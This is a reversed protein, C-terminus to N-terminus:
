EHKNNYVTKVIPDISIDKWKGQVSRAGIKFRVTKTGCCSGIGMLTVSATGRATNKVYSGPLVCFDGTAGDTSFVLKEKNKGIVATEFQEQSTITVADAGQYNQEKIKFTAKGIDRVTGAETIRYNASITEETYGGMGTVRVTIVDGAKPFSNGTLPQGDANVYILERRYDTGAKLLKGGTDYVRVTTKYQGAKRGAPQDIATVTIGAEETFPRRTIAFEKTLKGSYNGKGTITLKGKKASAEGTGFYATNGSYKLTYDRGERLAKGNFSVTLEPRAGAKAYVSTLAGAVDNGSITITKDALPRAAIRFKVRKEGTFSNANAGTTGGAKRGKLIVTATGTNRANILRIDYDIGPTLVAGNKGPFRLTLALPSVGDKDKLDDVSLSKGTYLQVPIPSVTVRSMEIQPATSGGGGEEDPLIRFLITETGTYNGKMRLILQPAKKKQAATLSETDTYTFVARNNRYSVTYDTKETLLRKGDYIRFDQTQKSGDYVLDRIGAVWVFETPIASVGGAPIDEPLVEGPDEKPVNGGSQASKMKVALTVANAAEEAPYVTLDLKGEGDSRRQIFYLLNGSSLPQKADRDCLTYINYISDPDYLTEETDERARIGTLIRFGTDAGTEFPGTEGDETACIVRDSTSAADIGSKQAWVSQQAWLDFSFIDDRQITLTCERSKMGEASVTVKYQGKKLYGVARGDKDTTLTTTNRSFRSDETWFGDLCTITANPIRDFEKYGNYNLGAYYVDFTVRYLDTLIVEIDRGEHEVHYEPVKKSGHGEATVTASYVGDPQYCVAEGQRNTTLRETSSLSGDEELVKASDSLTIVADNILAGYDDLVTFRVRCLYHPCTRGFGFEDHDFSYYWDTDLMRLTFKPNSLHLKEFINRDAITIRFEVELKLAAKGEICNLCEHITGKGGALRLSMKGTLEGGITLPLEVVAVKRTVVMIGPMMSVGLFVKGEMKLDSSLSPSKSLNSVGTDSDYRLGAASEVKIGGSCECSAELVIAPTIEATVAGFLTAMPIPALPWEKKFKGGCSFQVEIPVNLVAEVFTHDGSYPDTNLYYKFKLNPKVRFRGGYQVSFGYDDKVSENFPFEITGDKENVTFELEDEFVIGLPDTDSATDSAIDSAQATQSSPKKVVSSTDAEVDIKVYSFFDEAALEQGTVTIKGDISTETEEVKILIFGKDKSECALRDGKKLNQVSAEPNAFVYRLKEDDAEEVLNVSDTEQVRVVGADYVMFNNQHDEDLNVVLAQDFDDTTSALFDQMRKTHEGSEFAESLPALTEPDVLCARLYYYAPMIGIDIAVTAAEAGKEIATTGSALMRKGDEEYIAVLLRADGTVAELSVSAIKGEMDVSFIRYGTGEEEEQSATLNESMAEGFLKGLTDRGSLSVSTDSNAVANQDGGTALGDRGESAAIEDFTGFAESEEEGPYGEEFDCPIEERAEPSEAAARVTRMSAPEMGCLALMTVALMLSIMRKM